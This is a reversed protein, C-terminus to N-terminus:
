VHFQETLIHSPPIGREKLAARVDDLMAKRGCLYFYSQEDFSLASLHDTVRGRLGQWDAEPQSLTIAYSFNTYNRSLHQLWDQWFLNSQHRLGWLLAVSQGSIRTLSDAIPKLSAIGSGTGILIHRTSHEVQPVLRGFPLIVEMTIGLPSSDLFTSALGGPLREVLLEVHSTPEETPANTISYSRRQGDLVINLYQGPLYRVPEGLTLEVEFYRGGSDADRRATITALTHIPKQM